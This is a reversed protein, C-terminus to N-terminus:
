KNRVRQSALVFRDFPIAFGLPAGSHHKVGEDKKSMKEKQASLRSIVESTISPM